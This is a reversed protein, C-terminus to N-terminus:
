TRQLVCEISVEPVMLQPSGARVLHRETGQMNENTKAPRGAGTVNAGQKARARINAPEAGSSVNSSTQRTANAARRQHTNVADQHTTVMFSPLARLICDEVQRM